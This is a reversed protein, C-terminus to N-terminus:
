VAYYCVPRVQSELQSACHKVRNGRQNLKRRTNLEPTPPMINAYWCGASVAVMARRCFHKQLSCKVAICASIFFTPQFKIKEAESGSPISSFSESPSLLIKTDCSVTWGLKHGQCCPTDEKLRNSSNHLLEEEGTLPIHIGAKFDEGSVVSAISISAQAM